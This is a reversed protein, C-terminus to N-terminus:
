TRPKPYSPPKPQAAKLKANLEALLRTHRAQLKELRACRALLRDPVAAETRDAARPSRARYLWDLPIGFRDAIRIAVLVDLLRTGNEWQSYTNPRVAISKSFESAGLGLALRAARLRTGIERLQHAPRSTKSM